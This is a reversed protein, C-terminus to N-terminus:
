IVTEAAATPVVLSGHNQAFVRTFEAGFFLIQSSYYVWLVLVVLSGAAGYYSGVGAHGLYWGILSKGATFLIATLAAGVWVDKWPIFVDPLWKFILAFLFTVILFSMSVNLVGLITNWEPFMGGWYDGLAALAASSVLSVMLLFGTGLVMTISLFRTRLFQGLGGGSIPRVKWITNLSDQL